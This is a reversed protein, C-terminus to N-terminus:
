QTTFSQRDGIKGRLKAHSTLMRMSQQRPAPRSIGLSLVEFMGESEPRRGCPVRQERHALEVVVPLQVDNRRPVGLREERASLHSGVDSARELGGGKMNAHKWDPRRVPPAIEDREV